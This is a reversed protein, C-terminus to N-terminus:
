KAKKQASVKKESFIRLSSLFILACLGALLTTFAAPNIENLWLHTLTAGVMIGSLLLSAISLAPKVWLLVACAIETYGVVTIFVPPAPMTFGIQDFVRSQWLEQYGLFGSTLKQHIAADLVPSLKHFGSILFLVTLLLKVITLLTKIMKYHQIFLTCPQFHRLLYIM